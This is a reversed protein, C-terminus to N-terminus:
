SGTYHWNQDAAGNCYWQVLQVGEVLSGGSVGLCLGSGLDLLYRGAGARRALGAWV